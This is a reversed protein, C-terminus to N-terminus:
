CYKLLKCGKKSKKASLFIRVITYYLYFLKTKKGSLQSVPSGTCTLKFFITNFSVTSYPQLTLVFLFRVKFLVTPYQHTKIRIRIRDCGKAFQIQYVTTVGLGFGVTDLSSTALLCIERSFQLGQFVKFAFVFM